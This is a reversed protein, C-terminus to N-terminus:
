YAYSSAMLTWMIATFNNTQQMKKQPNCYSPHSIIHAASSSLPRIPNWYYFLILHHRLCKGPCNLCYFGGFLFSVLLHNQLTSSLPLHSSPPYESMCVRVYIYIYIHLMFLYRFLYISKSILVRVIHVYIYIINYNYIAVSLWKSCGKSFVKQLVNFALVDWSMVVYISM